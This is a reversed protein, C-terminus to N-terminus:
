VYLRGVNVNDYFSKAHNRFTRGHTRACTNAISHTRTRTRSYTPGIQFGERFTLRLKYMHCLILYAITVSITMKRGLSAFKKFYPRRHSFLCHNKDNPIVWNARVGRPVFVAIHSHMSM